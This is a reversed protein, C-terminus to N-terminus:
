PTVKILLCPPIALSLQMVPLAMFCQTVDDALLFADKQGPKQHLPRCLKEAHQISLTIVRAM